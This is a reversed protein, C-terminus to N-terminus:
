IVEIIERSYFDVLLEVEDGEFEIKVKWDDEDTLESSLVDKKEILDSDFFENLKGVFYDESFYEQRYRLYQDVENIVTVKSEEFASKLRNDNTLLFVDDDATELFDIVTFYIYVDKFGKDSDAEFPARNTIALNRFEEIRDTKVLEIVKYSFEDLSQTFLEEIRDDIHKKCETYDSSDFGIFDYFYNSKLKDLQGKLKKKKQRKIEDVVISPIAIDVLRSLEKIKSINGFFSNLDQNRISNTDLFVTDM